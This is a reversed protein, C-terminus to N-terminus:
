SFLVVLLLDFPISGSGMKKRSYGVIAVVACIVIPALVAAAYPAIDWLLRFVFSLGVSIAIALIVEGIALAWHAAGSRERSPQLPKTPQAPEPKADPEPKLGLDPAPEPEPNLAPVDGSSSGIAAEDGEEIFRWRWRRRRLPGTDQEIGAERLVDAVSRRSTGPVGDDALRRAM